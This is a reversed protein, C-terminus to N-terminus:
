PGEDPNGELRRRLQLMYFPGEPEHSLPEWGTTM